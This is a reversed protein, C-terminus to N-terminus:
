GVFLTLGYGGAGGASGNTCTSGRAGWGFNNIGYSQPINGACQSGGRGNSSMFPTLVLPNINSYTGGSTNGAQGCYGSGFGGGGNTKLLNYQTGNLGKTADPTVYLYSPSGGGSGAGVGCGVGGGGGGGTTISYGLAYNSGVLPDITKTLLLISAQSGSGGSVGASSCVCTGVSSTSGGGGGIIQVSTALATTGWTANALSIQSYTTLTDGVAVNSIATDTYNKTAIETDANPEQVLPLVNFTNSNTWTNNATLFASNKATWSDQIYKGTAADTANVPTISSNLTLPDAFTNEGTWNSGKKIASSATIFENLFTNNVGDQLGVSDIPCTPREVSFDNTGTWTNNTNQGQSSTGNINGQIDLDGNIITDNLLVNLDRGFITPTQRNQLHKLSM